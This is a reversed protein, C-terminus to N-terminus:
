CPPPSPQVTDGPVPRPHEVEVPRGPIVVLHRHEDVAVVGDVLQLPLRVWPRVEVAQRLHSLFSQRSHEEQGVLGEPFADAVDDETRPPLRAAVRVRPTPEIPQEHQQM